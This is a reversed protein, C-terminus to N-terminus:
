PGSIRKVLMKYTVVALGTPTAECFEVLKEEYGLQLIAGNESVLLKNQRNKSTGYPALAFIFNDFAMMFDRVKVAQESELFTPSTGPAFSEAAGFKLNPSLTM